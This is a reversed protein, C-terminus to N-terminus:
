SITLRAHKRQWFYIGLGVLFLFVSVVENYTPEIGWLSFYMAKEYFRVYEIAFRFVAEVMFLLAVLQGVFARRKMMFHLLIFIIVGYLSSYLQAPHIAADQYIHYPISGEPFSVGWPLKTPTGFCCGNFFCGIRTIALGIGLTPSFFDFTDLISMRKWRAYIMSSAIAVLIGGYLNLGAIGFNDSGFPNFSATWNGSFESLHFLVYFLRAGIVGGFIMIYAINMFQNFPREYKTCIYRIYLIGAFFSLALMVGYTRITVPGINFLEPHM